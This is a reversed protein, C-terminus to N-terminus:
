RQQGSRPRKERLRYTGPSGLGAAYAAARWAEPDGRELAERERRLAETLRRKAELRDRARQLRRRAAAAERRAPEVVAFFVAASVLVFLIWFIEPRESRKSDDNKKGM